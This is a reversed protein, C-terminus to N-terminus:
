KFDVLPARVVDDSDFVQCGHSPGIPTRCFGHVGVVRRPGIAASAELGPGATTDSGESIPLIDVINESCCLM